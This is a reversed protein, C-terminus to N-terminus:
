AACCNDLWYNNIEKKKCTLKETLSHVNILRSLDQDHRVLLRNRHHTTRHPAEHLSLSTIVLEAPSGHVRAVLSLPEDISGVEVIEDIIDHGRVEFRGQVIGEFSSSIIINKNFYLLMGLNLTM